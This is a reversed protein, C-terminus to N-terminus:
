FGFDIVEKATPGGGRIAVLGTVPVSNSYYMTQNGRRVVMCDYTRGGVTISEQGAAGQLFPPDDVPFSRTESKIVKGNIISDVRVVVVERRKAVVSHREQLAGQSSAYLAWEGVRADQLTSPQASAAAPVLIAILVATAIAIRM